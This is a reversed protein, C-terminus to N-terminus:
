KQAPPPAKSAPAPAPSGDSPPLSALELRQNAETSVADKVYDKAVKELEGKAEPKGQVLDLRARQFDAREPVGLERLKEFAARAEDIKNQAEFAYGLSESAFIRLPHEKRAGALFEELEKQAGAGDGGKLKRFGIEAQATMAASTGKQEA